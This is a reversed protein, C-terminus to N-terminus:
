VERALGAVRCVPADPMAARSDHVSPVVALAFVIVAEAGPRMPSGTVKVAVPMGATTFAPVDETSRVPLLLTGALPADVDSIVTVRRSWYPLATGLLVTESARLPVVDMMEAGPPKTEFMSPSTRNMTVFVVISVTVYVAVAFSGPAM